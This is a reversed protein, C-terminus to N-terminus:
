SAQNLLDQWQGSQTLLLCECRLFVVRESQERYRGRFRIGASTMDANGGFASRLWLRGDIYAPEKDPQTLGTSSFQNADLARFRIKISM